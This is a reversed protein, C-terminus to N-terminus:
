PQSSTWAGLDGSEFGDQHIPPDCLQGLFICEAWDPQDVFPNRNGQFSQIIENRRRELDDVPDERHWTLLVSLRGMHATPENNGTGVILSTDDTLILDPEVVGTVGHTDGAYRLDMYLQARAIEGRRGIWTEWSGTNGDGSFWNSNGPYVGTGGGQGNNVSTPLETCGANCSGFASNGRDGNYSVESLFLHHGDNHPYNESNDDPFGYSRPWSHERNYPGVGGGFKAFTANQYVDLIQTPDAPDEDASELMNWTDLSDASYPFRTHDDIADHLTSRLIAGNSADVGAYYGELSIQNFTGPTNRAESRAVTTGAAGGFGPLGEGDFDNRVWDGPTDTDIANPIRSAGGVVAGLGGHGPALVTSAYTQGDAAALAVADNIATWPELDLTGDDNTDLDEGPNGTFTQVLLVSTTGDPLADALSPTTWFGGMDSTGAQISAAIVGDGDLVVIWNTGYDTLPQGFIEVFEQIDMGVHDRVVENIVAAPPPPPDASNVLGPTNSAEGPDLSGIFGPLGAGSFDNRTWDAQANTDVGNPLRSAGGPTFSNGDFGPSLLTTSYTVNAGEDDVITLDDLIQTWPTLDFVGDDNTDLDMGLTGSFTEVLLFTACGNELQNDLFGTFWLGGSDTTGVPLIRDITGPGSGTDGEVQLLTLSSYDTSATGFLELFEHDDSGTHNAVVENIVQASAASSLGLAALLLCFLSFPYPSSGGFRCQRM